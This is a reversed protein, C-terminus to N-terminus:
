PHHHTVGFYFRWKGSANYMTSDFNMLVLILDLVSFSSDLQYSLHLLTCPPAHFTVFFIANPPLIHKQIRNYELAQLLNFIRMAVNYVKVRMIPIFPM